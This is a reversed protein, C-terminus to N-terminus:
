SHSRAGALTMRAGAIVLFGRAFGAIPAEKRCPDVAGDKLVGDAGNKRKGLSGIRLSM